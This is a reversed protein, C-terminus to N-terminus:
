ILDFCVKIDVNEHALNTIADAARRAVGGSGPQVRTVAAPRHAKLLRVLGPLAGASAIAAQLEPKVALLGLIFCAEKKVDDFAGPPPAQQQQQQQQQGAAAGAGGGSGDTGGAAAAAAAAAADDGVTLLPVVAPVAGLQVIAEVLDDSKSFEALAHCARRLAARDIAGVAGYAFRSIGAVVAAIQRGGTIRLSLALATNLPRPQTGLQLASM